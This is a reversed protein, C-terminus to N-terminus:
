DVEEFKVYDGGKFDRGQDSSNRQKPNFDINVNGDQPKNSRQQQSQYTQRSSNQGSFGSFLTRFIFGGVKSLIYIILFFIILFKFM